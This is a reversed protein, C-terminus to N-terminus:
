RLLKILKIAVCLNLFKINELINLKINKFARRSETCFNLINLTNVNKLKKDLAPTIKPRPKIKEVYM